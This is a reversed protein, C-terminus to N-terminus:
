EPNMWVSEGHVEFSMLQVQELELGWEEMANVILEAERNNHGKDVLIEKAMERTFHNIMAYAPTRQGVSVGNKFFLAPLNASLLDKLRLVYQSTSLIISM